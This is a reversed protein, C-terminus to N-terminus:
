CSYVAAPRRQRHCGPSAGRGEGTESTDHVDLGLHHGLGHPCFVRDVGAALMGQATQFPRLPQPQGNFVKSSCVLHCGVQQGVVGVLGVLGVWGMGGVWGVEVDGRVLGMGELGELMLRRAPAEVDRKWEAGVRIEALAVEQM